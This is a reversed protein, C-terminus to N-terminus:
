AVEVGPQAARGSSHRAGRAAGRVHRACVRPLGDRRQLHPRLGALASLRAQSVNVVRAARLTFSWISRPNVKRSMRHPQATAAARSGRRLRTTDSAVRTQRQSHLVVSSYRLPLLTKKTCRGMASSRGSPVGAIFGYKVSANTLFNTFLIDRTMRHQWSPSIRVSSAAFSTVSAPNVEM